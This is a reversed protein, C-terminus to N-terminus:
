KALLQDLYAKLLGFDPVGAIARRNGHSVVVITPTQQIKDQVAMAVDANVTDDLTADNQVLDRVKQMVGPALVQTVQKDISGDVSWLNQTQFLTNVVLDYQGQRGAANAYRAALRAYPHQQLPFDRHLLKVKGTQVYETMLIPMTQQYLMACSPCEYDTYIECTVTADPSGIEKFHAAAPATQAAKRAPRPSTAPQQAQAITMPQAPPNPLRGADAPVPVPAIEQAPRVEARKPFVENWLRRALPQGCSNATPSDCRGPIALVSLSAVSAAAAIWIWRRRRAHYIRDRERVQALARGADPRWERAAKLSAVQKEVWRDVNM